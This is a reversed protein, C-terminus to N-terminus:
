GKRSLASGRLSQASSPVVVLRRWRQRRTRKPLPGPLRVAGGWSSGSLGTQAPPALSHDPLNELVYGAASNNFGPVPLGGDGGAGDTGLNSPSLPNLGNSALSNGSSSPNGSSAPPLQAQASLIDRLVESHTDTDLPGTIEPAPPDLWGGDGDAPKASRPASALPPLKAQADLIDQLVEAHVDHALPGSLIPPQPAITPGDPWPAGPVIWPFTSPTLLGGHIAPGQGATQEAEDAEDGANGGLDGFGVM